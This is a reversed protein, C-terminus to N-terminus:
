TIVTFNKVANVLLTQCCYFHCSLAFSATAIGRGSSCPLCSHTDTHTPLAMDGGTLHLRVPLCAPPRSPTLPRVGTVVCWVDPLWMGRHGCWSFVIFVWDWADRVLPLLLAFYECPSLLYLPPRPRPLLGPLHPVSPFTWPRVTNVTSAVPFLLKDRFKTM